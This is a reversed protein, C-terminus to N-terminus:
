DIEFRTERIRMSNQLKVGVLNFFNKFHMDGRNNNPTMEDDVAYCYYLMWEQIAPVHQLSVPLFEDLDDELVVPIRSAEIRLVNGPDEALYANFAVVYQNYAAVDLAYQDQVEQTAGADPETPREVEVPRETSRARAPPWVHFGKDDTDTMMYHEIYGRPDDQRWHPFVDDMMGMEALTVARRPEGSVDDVNHLVHILKHLDSPIRQQHGNVLTIDRHVTNTHPSVNVISQLASNLSALLIDPKWEKQAVDRLRRSVQNIVDSNRM